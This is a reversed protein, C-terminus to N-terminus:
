WNTEDLRPPRSGAVPWSTASRPLRATPAEVVTVMTTRGVAAPVSRLVTSTVAVAVSASGVSLWATMVAVSTTGGGGGTASRDTVTIAEGWGAVRPWDSVNGTVTVLEPRM